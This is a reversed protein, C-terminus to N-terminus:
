YAWVPPNPGSYAHTGFGIMPVCKTQNFDPTIAFVSTTEPSYKNQCAAVGGKTANPARFSWFGSPTDCNYRPDGSPCCAIPPAQNIPLATWTWGYYEPWSGPPFSHSHQVTIAITGDVDVYVDQGGPVESIPYMSGALVMDTGNPCTSSQNGTFPCYSGVKAQFLNFNNIKGGNLHCNFPDYATITYPETLGNSSEASVAKKEIGQLARAAVLPLLNILFVLKM